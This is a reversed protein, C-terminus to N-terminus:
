CMPYKINKNLAQAFFPRDEARWLLFLVQFAKHNYLGESFALHPPLLFATTCYFHWGYFTVYFPVEFNAYCNTETTNFHTIM